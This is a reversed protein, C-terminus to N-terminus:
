CCTSRARSRTWTSTSSRRACGHWALQRRRVRKGPVAMSSGGAPRPTGVTPEPGRPRYFQLWVFAAASALFVLLSVWFNIREGLFHHSPDVRM